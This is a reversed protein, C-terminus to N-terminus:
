KGSWGPKNNDWFAIVTGFAVGICVGLGMGLALNNLAIGFFVGIGVGIALGFALGNSQRDQRVQWALAEKELEEIMEARTSIYEDLDMAAAALEMKKDSFVKAKEPHARLYNRFAVRRAIETANTKEVAIIKYSLDDSKQYVRMEPSASEEKKYGLVFISAEKEELLLFNEVVLLIDIIPRAVVGKVATSGIHSQVVCIKGLAKKVEIAEAKFLTKWELDHKVFTIEM